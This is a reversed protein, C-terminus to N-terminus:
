PLTQEAAALALGHRLGGRTTVFAPAGLARLTELLVLVAAAAIDERGSLADPALAFAEAPTLGLLRGSWEAVAGIPVTPAPAGASTDFGALRAVLRAVSGTAVVPAGAAIAAAADGPLTAAAARVDTRAALVAESDPPRSPFRRETLRVSGVDLSTRASVGGARTGVAVETSGGGVDVVVVPGDPADRWQSLAGRFSLAAEEAGSIVRFDLGLRERVAEVLVGVNSADRSASTAGIVIREAGAREATAQAEALCGVAREIADPALRRSADVGQGLRAFREEDAVIVLRGGVVDAVLANVTNTGVDIACVRM